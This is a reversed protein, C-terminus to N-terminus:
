GQPQILFFCFYVSSPSGTPPGATEILRSGQSREFGPAGVLCCAGASILGGVCMYYLVELDPNLWRLYVYGELSQHRWPTYLEIPHTTPPLSMRTSAPPYPPPIPHPFSLPQFPPLYFLIQLTFLYIFLYFILNFFLLLLPAWSDPAGSIFLLAVLAFLKNSNQKYGTSIYIYIYIYIYISLSLSLSLSTYIYV